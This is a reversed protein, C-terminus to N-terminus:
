HVLAEEDHLSHSWVWVCSVHYSEDPRTILEDCLGRQVQCCVFSVVSM